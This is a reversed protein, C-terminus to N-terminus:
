LQHPPHSSPVHPDARLSTTPTTKHKKTAEAVYRNWLKRKGFVWHVVVEDGPQLDSVDEPEVIANCNVKHTKGNYESKGNDKWTVWIWREEMEFVTSDTAPGCAEAKRGQSNKEM